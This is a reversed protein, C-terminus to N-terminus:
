LWSGHANCVCQLGQAGECASMIEHSYRVHLRSPTGPLSSHM